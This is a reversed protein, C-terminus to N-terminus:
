HECEERMEEKEEEKERMKDNEIVSEDEEQPQGKTIKEKKQFTRSTAPWKATGRRKLRKEM